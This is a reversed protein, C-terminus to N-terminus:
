LLDKLIELVASRMVFYLNKLLVQKGECHESIIYYSINIQQTNFHAM